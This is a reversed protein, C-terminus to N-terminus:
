PELPVLQLAYLDCKKVLENWTNVCGQRCSVTYSVRYKEAMSRRGREHGLSRLSSRTSITSVM